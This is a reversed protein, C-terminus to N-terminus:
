MIVVVEVPFWPPAAMLQLGYACGPMASIQVSCQVQGAAAWPVNHVPRHSLFFLSQRPPLVSGDGDKSDRLFAGLMLSVTKQQPRVFQKSLHGTQRSDVTPKPKKIEKVYHTIEHQCTGTVTRCNQTTDWLVAPMVENKTGITNNSGGDNQIGIDSWGTM